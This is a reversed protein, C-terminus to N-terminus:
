LAVQQKKGTDSARQVADILRHLRLASDFDPEIHQNTRIARAFNAWMQGVTIQGVVM